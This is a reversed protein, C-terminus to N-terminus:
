TTSHMHLWNYCIPDTPCNKYFKLSESCNHGLSLLEKETQLHLHLQGKYHRGCPFLEFMMVHIPPIREAKRLCSNYSDELTPHEIGIIEASFIDWAASPALWGEKAEAPFFSLKRSGNLLTLPAYCRSLHEFVQLHCESHSTRKIGHGLGKPINISLKNYLCKSVLNLQNRTLPWALWQQTMQFWLPPTLPFNLFVATQASPTYSPQWYMNEHHASLGSSYGTGTM